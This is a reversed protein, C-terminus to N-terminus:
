IYRQLKRLYRSAFSHRYDKSFHINKGEDSEFEIHFGTWALISQTGRIGRYNVPISLRPDGIVLFQGGPVVVKSFADANFKALFADWDVDNISDPLTLLDIVVVDFDAIDPLNLLNEWACCSVISNSVALKKHGM